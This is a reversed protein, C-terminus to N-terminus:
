FSDFLMKFNRLDVVNPKLGDPCRWEHRKLCFDYIFRRLLRQGSPSFGMSGDGGNKGTMKHIQDSFIKSGIGNEM